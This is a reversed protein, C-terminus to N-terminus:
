ESPETPPRGDGDRLRRVPHPIGAVLFAVAALAIEILPLRGDNGPTASSEDLLGAADKADCDLTCLRILGIAQTLHWANAGVHRDPVTGLIGYAELCSKAVLAEQLSHFHRVTVLSAM